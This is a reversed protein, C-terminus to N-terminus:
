APIFNTAVPGPDPVPIAFSAGVLAFASSSRASPYKSKSAAASSITDSILWCSGSLKEVDVIVLELIDCHPPPSKALGPELIVCSTSTVQTLALSLLYKKLAPPSNLNLASRSPATVAFEFSSWHFVTKALIPVIVNPLVAVTASPELGPVPDLIPM